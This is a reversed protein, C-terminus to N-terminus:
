LGKRIIKKMYTSKYPKCKSCSCTSYNLTSSSKLTVNGCPYIVKLLDDNKETVTGYVGLNTGIEIAKSDSKILRTVGDIFHDYDGFMVRILNIVDIIEGGKEYPVNLYDTFYADPYKLSNFDDMGKKRLYDVFQNYGDGRYHYKKLIEKYKDYLLQKITKFDFTCPSAYFDILLKRTQEDLKYIYGHHETLVGNATLGVTKLPRSCKLCCSIGPIQNVTKFYGTDCHECYKLTVDYDTIGTEWNTHDSYASSLFYQIQAEGIFHKYFDYLTSSKIISSTDLELEPVHAIITGIMMSISNIKNISLTCKADMLDTLFDELRTYANLWSMRILWGLFYEDDFPKTINHIM